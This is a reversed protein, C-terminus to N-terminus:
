RSSRRRAPRTSRRARRARPRSRPPPTSSRATAPALANTLFFPAKVNAAYVSDFDEVTADSGAGFPYIGANNVLIDVQGGIETM